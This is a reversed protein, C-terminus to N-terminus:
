EDESFIAESIVPIEETNQVGPNVASVVPIEETNQSIESQPVMPIEETNQKAFETVAPIEETNQPIEEAVSVPKELIAKAEALVKEDMQIEGYDKIVELQADLLSVVKARFIEVSRKMEEYKYAILAVEKAADAILIEGRRKAAEEIEDGNKRAVTLANQLTEEMAKYEKVADSLVSIREKAALNEEYLENYSRAIEQLFQEVDEIDYGRMAKKFVKQDIDKPTLM